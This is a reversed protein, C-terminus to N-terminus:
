NFISESFELIKTAVLDDRRGQSDGGVSLLIEKDKAYIKTSGADMAVHETVIDRQDLGSILTILYRIEDNTITKIPKSKIIEDYDVSKNENTNSWNFVNGKNTIFTTEFTYEWANNSYEKVLIPHEYENIQNEIDDGLGCVNPPVIISSPDEILSSDSDETSSTTTTSTTSTNQSSDEVTGCASLALLCLVITIIRKM